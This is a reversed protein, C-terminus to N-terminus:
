VGALLGALLAEWGTLLGGLWPPLRVTLLPKCATSPLEQEM